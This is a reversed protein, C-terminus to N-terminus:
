EFFWTLEIVANSYPAPSFHHVRESGRALPIALGGTLRLSNAPNVTYQMGVKVRCAVDWMLGEHIGFDIQKDDQHHTWDEVWKGSITTRQVAGPWLHIGSLRSFM